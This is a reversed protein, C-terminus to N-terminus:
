QRGLRRLLLRRRNTLFACTQVVVPLFPRRQRFVSSISRYVKLFGISHEVKVRIKRLERNADRARRNQALRIPKILPDRAPYGGDAALRGHRPLRLIGNNGVSPILRYTQSDNM